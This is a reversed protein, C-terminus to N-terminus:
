AHTKKVQPNITHTEVVINLKPYNKNILERIKELYPCRIVLCSSLHITEAGRMVLLDVEDFLSQNDELLCGGCTTFGVLEVKDYQNFKGEKERIAKFCNTGPCKKSHALCRIIGVKMMEDEVLYSEPNFLKKVRATKRKTIFKGGGFIRILRAHTPM